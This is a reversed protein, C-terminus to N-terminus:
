TGKKYYNKYYYYGGIGAAALFLPKKYFPTEEELLFDEDLLDDEGEPAAPTAPTMPRPAPMMGPGIQASPYTRFAGSQIMYNPIAGPALTETAPPAPTSPTAAPTTPSVASVFTPSLRLRRYRLRLRRRVRRRLRPPVGVQSVAQTAAAFPAMGSRLLSLGFPYARRTWYRVVRLGGFIPRFLSPTPAPAASTVAPTATMAQIRAQRRAASRAAYTARRSAAAAQRRAQVRAATQASVRARYAARRQRAAERQAAQQARAEARAGQRAERRATERAQSRIDRQAQAPSQQLIPSTSRPRLSLSQRHRLLDARRRRLQPQAAPPATQIQAETQQIQTDLASPPGDSSAVGYSMHYM